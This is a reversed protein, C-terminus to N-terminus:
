EKPISLKVYKHGVFEKFEDRIRGIDKDSVDVSWGAAVTVITNGIICVIHECNLAVINHSPTSEFILLM